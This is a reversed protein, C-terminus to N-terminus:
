TNLGPMQRIPDVTFRNPEKAWIGCIYEYPSLGKLTELRRGFNYATVFDAVHSRAQDNTAYYYREVTAEKLARSMPEVQGNTWPHNPQATSPAARCIEEFPHPRHRAIQGKRIRPLDTLQLGTDTLVSRVRYPVAPILDRLFRAATPRDSKEHLAPFAFKATRTLTRARPPIQATLARRAYDGACPARRARSRSTTV